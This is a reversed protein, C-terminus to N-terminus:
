AHGVRVRRLFDLEVNEKALLEANKKLDSVSIEKDMLFYFMNLRAPSLFQYRFLPLVDREFVENQYSEDQFRNVVVVGGENLKSKVDRFFEVTNCNKAFGLDSFTDVLIVDYRKPTEKIFKTADQINIKLNPENLYFFQKGTKVIVPDLEVGDIEEPRFYKNYLGVATGGCLGLVCMTKPNTDLFLRGLLFHDWVQGSPKINEQYISHTYRNGLILRRWEGDETVKIQNIPSSTEFVTTPLSIISNKLTQAITM